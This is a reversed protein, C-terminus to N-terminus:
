KTIIFKRIVTEGNQLSLHMTYAGKPLNTLDMVTKNGLNTNAVVQQGLANYITVRSINEASEINLQGVTPNPYLTVNASEAGNIGM